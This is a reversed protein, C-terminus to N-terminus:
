QFFIVFPFSLYFLPLSLSKLIIPCLTEPVISLGMMKIWGVFRLLFPSRRVIMIIIFIFNVVFVWIWFSIRGSSFELLGFISLCGLFIVFLSFFGCFWFSYVEFVINYRGILIIIDDLLLRCMFQFFLGKLILKLFIKYILKSSFIRSQFFLHFIIFIIKRSLLSLFLFLRFQHIHKARRIIITKSM